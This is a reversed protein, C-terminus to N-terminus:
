SPAIRDKREENLVDVIKTLAKHLDCLEKGQWFILAIAIGYFFTATWNSIM